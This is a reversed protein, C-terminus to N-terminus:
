SIKQCENEIQILLDLIHEHDTFDIHQKISQIIDLLVDTAHLRNLDIDVEYLWDEFLYQSKIDQFVENYPQKLVSTISNQIHLWFSQHCYCLYDDPSICIAHYTDELLQSLQVQSQPLSTSLESLIKQKYVEKDLKRQQCENFIHHICNLTEEKNYSANYFETLWQPNHTQIQLKIMQLTKEKTM